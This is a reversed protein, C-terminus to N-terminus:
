RMVTGGDVNIVQGNVWSGEDSMLYAVMGAVDGETGHRTSRNRALMGDLMGAPAGERIKDTVILGPAIANARVGEKGWRSAVHRALSNIGAKTASYAPRRAEGTFAAISSTYVIAGGGRRLLEPIAHRTVLMHGRLNVAITRDWVELDMDVVDSDRRVMDMAGANVHVADLGGFAGVTAAVLAAVSADDSIDFRTAAAHGGLATIAAATREAGVADVDGVMVRAGDQALRRASAAGLGTAAGAVLIVKGKLGQM